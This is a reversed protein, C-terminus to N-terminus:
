PFKANQYLLETEEEIKKNDGKFKEKLEEKKIQIDKYISDSRKRYDGDL